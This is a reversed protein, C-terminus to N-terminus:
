SVQKNIAAKIQQMLAENGTRSKLLAGQVQASIDQSIERASFVIIPTQHEPSNLIPLLDVGSGDPLGIDLLVLDFHEDNILQKAQTLTKALIVQYESNLLTDVIMAIDLDDEVHLIRRKCQPHFMSKRISSLLRNKDIPKEIWDVVNLVDGKMELQGQHAKASVVIVPLERTADDARLKRLLSIGSGGPIMLDLTVAHYQHTQIQEIAQQYNFAQHYRYGDDELMMGLLGSVDQDDEVVLLLPRSSHIEKGMKIEKKQASQFLILDVYFTTGKDTTSEFSISGGHQEVISKTISLGLGTGGKKRTDSSDARAFKSFIRSKFEEPIGKGHDHVAIRAHRNKVRVTIEVQDHAPSYKAANSLLNSMVQAIRKEDIRVIVNKHEGADFVFHVNLPDAYGQNSEVANQIVSILNTVTYDFHMKGAAIQDIDLIDNILDILRESNSNAISVLAQAKEPIEGVVGGLLLGLSGRISTLPTRLEHSVTSIFEKQMQEVRKRESIDRVIGAFHSQDGILLTSLAMEMPFTSGDKRLGVIELGVGKVKKADISVHNSLYDDYEAHYPGPMLVKVSHAIVEDPRYGFIRAAAPNFTEIFGQENLTIIGDVVNNIVALLRAKEDLVNQEDTQRETIDRVIAAFHHQEGILLTSVAMEMAFTSSDKRVGVSELGLVRVKDEDNSVHNLLYDDYADHCSVPMLRKVRQGIAEDPRYGFIRAAAPNFTEIFGNENITIIGDVVNDIVALLRAKEDLVNQEDTQRASIDRVIGTFHREDGVNLESVALEMPFTSGDKRKGVMERGIGIIKKDDIFLRKLLYNDDESHYSGPILLNINQGIVDDASYGFIRESAPNFSEVMGIKNITILSDILSDVILSHRKTKLIIEAELDAKILQQDAALDNFTQYLIRFEDTVSSVDARVMRDGQQMKKAIEALRVVPAVINRTTMWLTVMLAFLGMIIGALLSGGREAIIPAFAINEPISLGLLWYRSHDRPSFFIKQFGDVEHKESDYRILSDEKKSLALLEPDDQSLNHGSGLAKGFIKAADSHKIYDGHEDSIFRKAGSLDTFVNKFLQDIFINIVILGEVNDDDQLYVPTAIRFIPTYPQRIMGDERNLNVDSHYIKGAALKLTESVYLNDEQNQFDDVVTAQGTLSDVRVLEHGKADIYKLQAYSTNNHTFSLFTAELRQKWQDLSGGRVPDIGGANRSRIIASVAPVDRLSLLNERESNLITSIEHSLLQLATQKLAIINKEAHVRSTWYSYESAIFLSTFILLGLGLTTKGRVGLKLKSFM